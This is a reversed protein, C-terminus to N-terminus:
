NQSPLTSIFKIDWLELHSKCCSYSTWISLIWLVKTLAGVVQKLIRVEKTCHGVEQTGVVVGQTYVRVVQTGIGVEQTCVGAM